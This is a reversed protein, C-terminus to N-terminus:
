PHEGEGVDGDGFGGWISGVGFFTGMKAPGLGGWAAGM